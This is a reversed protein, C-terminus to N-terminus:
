SCKSMTVTASLPMNESIDVLCIMTYRLVIGLSTGQHPDSVVVPTYDNFTTESSLIKLCSHRIVAYREPDSPYQISLYVVSNFSPETKITRMSTVLDTSGNPQAQPFVLRCSACHSSSSTLSEPEYVSSFANDTVTNSSDSDLKSTNTINSPIEEMAQSPYLAQTVLISTPGHIECFHGLCLM